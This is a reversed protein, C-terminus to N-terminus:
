PEKLKIGFYIPKPKGFLHTYVKVRGKRKDVKFIYQEKGLLPGSLIKIKGDIIVAESIKILEDNQSYGLIEKMEKDSVPTPTGANVNRTGLVRIVGPITVIKYYISETLICRIFVYGAYMNRHVTKKMGQKFEIIEEKFVRVDIKPIDRTIVHKVDDECNANVHLVYWKYM